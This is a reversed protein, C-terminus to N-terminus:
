RAGQARDALPARYAQTRVRVRQRERAPGRIRGSELDFEAARKGLPKAHRQSEFPYQDAILDWACVAVDYQVGDCCIVRRGIEADLKRLRIIPATDSKRHRLTARNAGEFM